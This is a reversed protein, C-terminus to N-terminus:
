RRYAVGFRRRVEKKGSNAKSSVLRAQEDLIGRRKGAQRNM